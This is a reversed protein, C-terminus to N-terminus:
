LKTPELDARVQDVRNRGTHLDRVPSALVESATEVAGRGCGASSSVAGGAAFHRALRGLRTLRAVGTRARGRRLDLTRLGIAYINFLVFICFMFKICWVYVSSMVRVRVRKNVVADSM